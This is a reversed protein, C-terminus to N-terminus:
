LPWEYLANQYIDRVKPVLLIHQPFDNICFIAVHHVRCSAVIRGGALGVENVTM